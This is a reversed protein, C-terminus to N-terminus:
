WEMQMRAAVMLGFAKLYLTLGHRDVQDIV